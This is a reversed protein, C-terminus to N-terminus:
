FVEDAPSSTNKMGSFPFILIEQLSSLPLFLLIEM